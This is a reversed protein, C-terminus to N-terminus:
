RRKVQAIWRQTGFLNQAPAFSELATVLLVESLVCDNSHVVWSPIIHISVTATRATPSHQPRMFCDFTTGTNSTREIFALPAACPRKTCVGLANWQQTGFWHIRLRTSIPFPAERVSNVPQCAPQAPYLRQEPTDWRQTGFLVDEIPNRLSLLRFTRKQLRM